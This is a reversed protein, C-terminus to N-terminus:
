VRLDDTNDEAAKRTLEKVENAIEEPDRGSRSIYFRAPNKTAKMKQMREDEHNLERVRNQAKLKRLVSQMANHEEETFLLLFLDDLVKQLRVRRYTTKNVANKKMVETIFDKFQTEISEKPIPDVTKKTM